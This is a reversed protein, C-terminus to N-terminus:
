GGTAADRLMELPPNLSLGPGPLVLAGLGAALACGAQAM